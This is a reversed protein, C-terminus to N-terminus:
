VLMLMSPTAFVLPALHPSVAMLSTQPTTHHANDLPIL